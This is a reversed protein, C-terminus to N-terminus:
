RYNINRAKLENFFERTRLKKGQAIFEEEVEFRKKIDSLMLPRKFYPNASKTFLKDMEDLKSWLEPRYKKLKRLDDLSQLPCCWCSVRGWIDYLGGWDFGRDYCYKLCDEETMNWEVLPYSKDDKVRNPEDVAIGLYHIVEYDKALKAMYAETIDRKLGATCWRSFVTPYGYGSVIDGKKYGEVKDSRTAFKHETGWYMYDKDSKIITIERGIYEEVKKIHEEMEPFELGTDCYVIKDVPRNEEILRLLMATSDKGGSFSVVYLKPKSM